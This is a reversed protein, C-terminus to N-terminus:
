RSWHAIGFPQDEKASLFSSKAIMAVASLGMESELKSCFTPGATLSLTVAYPESEAGVSTSPLHRSLGSQARFQLLFFPSKPQRCPQLYHSKRPWSPRGQQQDPQGKVLHDPVPFVVWFLLKWDVNHVITKRMPPLRLGLCLAVVNTANNCQSQILIVPWVDELVKDVDESQFEGLLLIFVVSKM